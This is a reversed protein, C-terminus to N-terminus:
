ARHPHCTAKVKNMIEVIDTQAFAASTGVVRCRDNSIGFFVYGGKNNALAAIARVIPTLKKPNFDQKCEHEESEGRHLLWTSDSGKRFLARVDDDASRATNEAPAFNQIFRELEDDSAASIKASNSYTDNRITSIRGFNV